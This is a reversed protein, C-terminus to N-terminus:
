EEEGGRMEPKEGGKKSGEIDSRFRRVSWFHLLMVARRESEPMLYVSFAIVDEGGGGGRKATFGSRFFTSDAALASVSGSRGGGIEAV